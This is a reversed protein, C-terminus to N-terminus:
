HLKRNVAHLFARASATVVDDQILASGILPTVTGKERFLLKLLVLDNSGLREISM